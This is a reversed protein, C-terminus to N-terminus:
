TVMVGILSYFIETMRSLGEHGKTIGGVGRKIWTDVSRIKVVM